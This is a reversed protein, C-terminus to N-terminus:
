VFYHANEAAINEIADFISALHERMAAVAAPADGDAVSGVIARHEKFRKRSRGPDALSLRRVRDLQAKAQHIVQWANDHGALAALLRHMAEDARFFADPDGSAIAASQEAINAKLSRRAATDARQAGLEVIRCELTERIFHNDRVTQLHIRAVFTGVQPIVDLFGDEALRQFAERVPTRSVGFAEAIRAESLAAGPELSVSVIRERLNAYIDPKIRRSPRGAGRSAHQPEPTSAFM